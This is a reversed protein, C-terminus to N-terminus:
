GTWAGLVRLADAFDVTWSGDLDAPSGPAPGFAALVGLLDAIGVVGDGDLDELVSVGFIGALDLRGAGLQGIFEPNAADINAAGQAIALDIEDPSAEPQAAGVLAAAASIFATSLSTGESGRYGGGPYASLVDTGPAAIFVQDGYNSFSSKRDLDDVAAVGMAGADAAPFLPPETAGENGVAAVVVIGASRAAHVATLLVGQPETSGLSLNIVNAGREIALYIGAAIRFSTGRGDGDLIRIPLITAGPALHRVLGAVMTGHGVLEDVEGDGDTDLGDGVDAPDDDDDVLDAGGPAIAGALQPHNADVGTDLVAVIIGTGTTTRWAGAPRVRDFGYQGFFEDPLADYFVGQTQGGALEQALNRDADDIAPDRELATIEADTVPGPFRLLYLERDEVDGIVVVGPPLVVDEITSDDELEIIVEDPIAEDAVAIPAAAIAVMAALIQMVVGRGALAARGYAARLAHRISVFRARHVM